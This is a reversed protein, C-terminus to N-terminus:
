GQSARNALQMLESRTNLRVGERFLAPLLSDDRNQLIPMRDLYPMYGQITSSCIDLARTRGHVSLFKGHWQEQFRVAMEHSVFNLFVHSAMKKERFNFPLHLLDFSGDPIWEMLLKEQTYRAPINRVVLTTDGPALSRLPRRSGHKSQDGQAEPSLGRASVHVNAPAQLHPDRGSSEVGRHTGSGTSIERGQVAREHGSRGVVPVHQRLPAKGNQIQLHGLCSGAAVETVQPM